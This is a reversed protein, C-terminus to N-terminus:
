PHTAKAAFANLAQEAAVNALPAPLEGLLWGMASALLMWRRDGPYARWAWPGGQQALITCASLVLVALEELQTVSPLV